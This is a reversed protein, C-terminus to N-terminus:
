SSPHPVPRARASRMCRLATNPTFLRMARVPLPKACFRSLRMVARGVFSAGPDLDYTAGIAARLSAHDTNPYVHLKTAAQQAAALAKPSAGFPNENSSLKIVDTVGEVHSAGGVYLDIDMIGPQPQPAQPM